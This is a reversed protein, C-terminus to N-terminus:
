KKRSTSIPVVNLEYKLKKKNLFKNLKKMRKSAKKPNTYTKIYEERSTIVTDGTVLSVLFKICTKPKLLLKFKLKAVLKSTGYGRVSIAYKRM